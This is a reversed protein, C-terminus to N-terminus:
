FNCFVHHFSSLLVGLQKSFPPGTHTTCQRARAHLLSGPAPYSRKHKISPHLRHGTSHLHTFRPSGSPQAFRATAVAACLLLLAAAAAAARRLELDNGYEWPGCCVLGGRSSGMDQAAFSRQEQNSVSDEKPTAARSCCAYHHM